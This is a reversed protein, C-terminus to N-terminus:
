FIIHHYGQPDRYLVELTAREHCFPGDRGADIVKELIDDDPMDQLYQRVARRKFITKLTENDTAIKM